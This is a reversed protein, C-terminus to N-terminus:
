YTREYEAGYDAFFWEGNTIDCVARVTRGLKVNVVRRERDSENIWRGKQSLKFGCEGDIFVEGSKAVYDGNIAKASLTGGYETVKEGKSYNKRAKLGHCKRELDWAVVPGPLENIRQVVRAHNDQLEEKSVVDDKYRKRKGRGEAM